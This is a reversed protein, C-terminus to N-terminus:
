YRDLAKDIAQNLRQLIEASAPGFDSAKLYLAAEIAVGLLEPAAALLRANAEIERATRTRANGLSAISKKDPGYVSNVLGYSQSPVARWPGPTFRTSM